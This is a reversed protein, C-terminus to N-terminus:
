WTGLSHPVLVNGRLQVKLLGGEVLYKIEEENPKFFMTFGLGMGDSVWDDTVCAQADVCHERSIGPPPGVTIVKADHLEKVFDEPVSVNEM